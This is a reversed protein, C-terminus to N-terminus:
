KRLRLLLSEGHGPGLIVKLKEEYVFSAETPIHPVHHCSRCHSEPVARRIKTRDGAKVHLSGPGHCSECQVNKFPDVDKAKCYGGPEMFGASHCGICNRDLTKNADQLTKWAISHGSLRDIMKGAQNKAKVKVVAKQWFEYAPAHCTKCSEAGVYVPQGPIPKPCDIQGECANLREPLKKEYALVMATIEPDPKINRNITISSFRMHPGPLPTDKISGLAKLESQASDIRATVFGSPPKAKLADIRKKIIEIEAVRKFSRTDLELPGSKQQDTNFFELKGLYQGQSGASFVWLGNALQFPNLLADATAGGWILLDPKALKLTELQTKPVASLAIKVKGMQFYSVGSGDSATEQIGLRKLTTLLVEKKDPDECGSHHNPDLLREGVDLFTAGPTEKVVAALRDIGGLPDMTCGCPAITGQLRTTFFLTEPKTACQCASLM